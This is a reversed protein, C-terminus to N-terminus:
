SNLEELRMQVNQEAKAAEIQQLQMENHHDVAVRIPLITYNLTGNHKEGKSILVSTHEVSILKRECLESVYKSVTGTSCGLAAAITGYSPHCQHSKRDELRMLYAYIAIATSSLGLSFIENPLPFFYGKKANPDYNM